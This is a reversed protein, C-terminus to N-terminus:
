AWPTASILAGCLTKDLRQIIQRRHTTQKPHTMCYMSYRDDSWKREHQGDYSRMWQAGASSYAGIFLLILLAKKM